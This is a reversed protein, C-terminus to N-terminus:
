RSAREVDEARQRSPLRGGGSARDSMRLMISGRWSL